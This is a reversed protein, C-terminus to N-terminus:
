FMWHPEHVHSPHGEPVKWLWFPGVPDGHDHMAGTWSGVVGAACGVNGLQIGESSWQSQGDAMSAQFRWRIIGDGGMSVAGNIQSENGHVGRSTGTFYLPPYYASKSKSNSRVLFSANRPIESAPILHLDLEILRTAEQFNCDEFFTPDRTGHSNRYDMFSVYRRWTGEVCAWDDPARKSAGPASYGRTAELGVPPRTDMWVGDLEGLNMQIVNVIAEVHAWNVERGYQFPGFENDRRYNRLDYVYCRSKIRIDRLFPTIDKSCKSDLSLALYARLRGIIQAGIKEPAGPASLIGSDRLIRHVFRLSASEGYPITPQVPPADLIASIFTEVAAIQEDPRQEANLAALESRIRRQLEGKWNYAPHASRGKLSKRPDDFLALFLQRWLYHDSAGYVLARGARSVQAFAAVDIPHLFTLAHESIEPPITFILPTAPSM